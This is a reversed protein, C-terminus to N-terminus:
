RRRRGQALRRGRPRIRPSTRVARHEYEFPVDLQRALWRANEEVALDDQGVQLRATEGAPTAALSEYVTSPDHRRTWRGPDVERTLVRVASIKGRLESVLAPSAKLRAFSAGLIDIPAEERRRRERVYWWLLVAGIALAIAIHIAAKIWAEM